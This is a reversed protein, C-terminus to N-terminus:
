EYVEDEYDEDWEDDGFPIDTDYSGCIGGYGHMPEQCRGCGDCEEKLYRICRYAM